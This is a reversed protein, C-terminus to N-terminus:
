FRFYLFPNYSADVLWAVSLFFIVVYFANRLITLIGEREQLLATIATGLRKPLRTSGLILLVLLVINNYLLYITERNLLGQGYGGFLAKMFSLGRGMDDFVFLNWGIMVFFMCYIHRLISPLKELFRGFVFKELLLLIGYYIGWLVFNWSAGHWIGTLLWVVLINRVHRLKNVRNGGLPIYVYDRFWTSLSIHWRRWFETISKSIYPYNFNELFEFGFMHGLGIAMDSYASFDFYLQFTYATLGMWATLAPLEAYSMAQISDWLAGANNALLVKKGLGLMFRHIGEAFEEATERRSRLQQDITKYQVIPGAILQPFMVVYAGFSILNKQVSAEGRYVDITYSMTQFTYFSIGIPLAIKLLDFGAGTVSNVTGIVFDAYKFFGLLSLSIVSSVVLATKAARLRGQRKLRDVVIGGTYSVLISVLMLVIYVPEGWAYFLLSFLFLVLNRLSRPVVYYCVLVAPLFRFLFLLSSFIM